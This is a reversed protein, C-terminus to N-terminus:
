SENTVLWAALSQLVTVLFESISQLVNLLKMVEVTFLPIFVKERKGWRGRKNRRMEREQKTVLCSSEIRFAIVASFLYGVVIVLM